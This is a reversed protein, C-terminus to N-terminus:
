EIIITQTITPIGYINSADIDDNEDNQAEIEYIEFAFDNWLEANDNIRLLIELELRSWDEIYERMDINVNGGILWASYMLGGNIAIGISDIDSDDLNGIKRMSIGIIDVGWNESEIEITGIKIDDSVREIGIVGEDDYEIEIEVSDYEEQSTVVKMTQTTIPLGEIETIDEGTEEDEADIKYIEFQVTDWDKATDETSLLIDLEIEDGDELYAGIQFSLNGNVLRETYINTGNLSLKVDDIDSDDITGIQRLYIEEIEVDGDEVELIITGVKINDRDRFIDKTNSQEYDVDIEIDSVTPTIVPPNYPGVDDYGYWFKVANKRTLIFNSIQIMNSRTSLGSIQTIDDNDNDELEIDSIQLAINNEQIADYPIDVVVTLTYSEDESVYIEDFEDFTVTGDSEIDRDSIQDILRNNNDFLRVMSVNNNLKSFPSKFSIEDISFDNNNSKFTFSWLEFNNINRLVHQAATSHTNLSIAVNNTDWSSSNNEEEEINNIIDIIESTDDNFEEIRELILEELYGLIIALKQSNSSRKQYKEISKLLKNYTNIQSEESRSSLKKDLNAMVKDLKVQIQPYKIEINDRATTAHAISSLSFLAILLSIWITKITNM